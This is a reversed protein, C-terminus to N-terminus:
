IVKFRGKWTRLLVPAKSCPGNKITVEKGELLSESFAVLNDAAVNCNWTNIMTKYANLCITERESPHEILWQVKKYLDDYNTSAFVCGNVGDEILYPVSGINSDAVVACGSNMSENLVAGWGERRDSTLLFIDSMEMQKRVEEHPMAGLLHVCHDLRKERIVHQLQNEMEGKGVINMDFPVGDNKLREAVVVAAEPHKWGILRGAWLISVGEHSKLKKKNILADISEYNIVETFYGWRLCKAPDMGSLIYDIPGYASASLLYGKNFWHSNYTYVPWKILRNPNKYRSEDDRFTLKGADYRDKIISLPAEGLVVVDADMILRDIRAKERSYKLTYPVDYKHYGLQKQEDPFSDMTEVFWYEEKFMSYFKDALPKQHHNFFNSLYIIKM